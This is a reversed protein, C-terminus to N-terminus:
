IEALIHSLEPECKKLVVVPICDPGFAESSDLNTIVKKVLKPTVSTHLKLNTKSLFALLSFILDDLNSNTSFYKAKNSASPLVNIDNLLPPTASKGKNLVSDAIRWFTFSFLKQSTIPKKTKNAYALRVAELAWKRHNSAQRSTM